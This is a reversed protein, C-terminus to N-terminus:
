LYVQAICDFGNLFSYCYQLLRCTVSAKGFEQLYIDRRFLENSPSLSADMIRFIGTLIFQTKPGSNILDDPPFVDVVDCAETSIKRDTESVSQSFLNDCWM